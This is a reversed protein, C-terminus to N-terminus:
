NGALTPFVERLERLAEPGGEPHARLFQNLVTSSWNLATAVAAALPPDDGVVEM